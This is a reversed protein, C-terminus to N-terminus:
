AILELSAAHLDGTEVVLLDRRELFSYLRDIVFPCRTDAFLQNGLDLGNDFPCHVVLGHQNVPGGATPRLRVSPRVVDPWHLLGHRGRGRRRRSGDLGGINLRGDILDSSCM